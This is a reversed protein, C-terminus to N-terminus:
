SLAGLELEHNGLEDEALEISGFVDEALEINGFVDEALEISGFATDFATGFADDKLPFPPVRRALATVRRAAARRLERM